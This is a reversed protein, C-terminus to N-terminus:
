SRVVARAPRLPPNRSAQVLLSGLFHEPGIEEVTSQLAKLSTSGLSACLVTCDAARAVQVTTLNNSPSSAALIVRTGRSVEWRVGDLFAEVHKPRLRRVDAVRLSAGHELALRALLNAVDLTSTQDDGPVLVLTRWDLSQTRLWARQWDNRDWFGDTSPAEGPVFLSPTKAPHNMVTM